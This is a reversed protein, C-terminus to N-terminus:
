LSRPSPPRTESYKGNVLRDKNETCWRRVEARRDGPNKEKSTATRAAWEVVPRPFNSSNAVLRAITSATWVSIPRISYRDGPAGGYTKEPSEDRFLLDLLPIILKPNGSCEFATGVRPDDKFKALYAATTPEDNVRLLVCAIDEDYISRHRLEEVVAKNAPNALYGKSIAGRDLDARMKKVLELDQGLGPSVFLLGPLLILTVICSTKRSMNNIRSPQQKSRPPGTRM